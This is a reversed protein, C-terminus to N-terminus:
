WETVHAWTLEAAAAEGLAAAQEVVMTSGDHLAEKLLTEYELLRANAINVLHTEPEPM